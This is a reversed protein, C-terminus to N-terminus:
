FNAREYNMEADSRRLYVPTIADPLCSLRETNDFIINALVSAKVCNQFLPAFLAKDSMNKQILERFAVAGSGVFLCKNIDAVNSLAIEPNVVVEESKQILRGNNFNYIACYVEGRKADMMVCVPISSFIFQYAIADLTSIGASPKSTAFALGKIVSIGIRLGTFSGPGCSVVFGDLDGIKIGASNEVTHAIMEMVTKSHTIKNLNFTECILVRDEVLAISSSQEATDLALIRM